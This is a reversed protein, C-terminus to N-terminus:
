ASAIRDPLHEQISAGFSFDEGAASLVIAVLDRRDLLDETVAQLATLMEQDVINGRPASLTVRAVKGGFAQAHTVKRIM